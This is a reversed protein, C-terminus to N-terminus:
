LYRFVMNDEGCKGCAIVDSAIARKKYEEGQNELTDSEYNYNGCHGCIFGITPDVEVIPMKDRM